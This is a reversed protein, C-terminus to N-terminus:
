MPTWTDAGPDYRAGDSLFRAGRQGGWILMERGAWFAVHGSRPSPAGVTSMAKWADTRPDYRAGDWLAGREGSGGWVLMETGTWVATHGERRSPSSQGSVPAAAPPQSTASTGAHAQRLPGASDLLVINLILVVILRLSLM